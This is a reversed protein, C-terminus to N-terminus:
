GAQELHDEKSRIALGCCVGFAVGLNAVLERTAPNKKLAFYQLPNLQTVPLQLSAALTSELGLVKSGGGVLVCETVPVAQFDVEIQRFEELASKVSTTIEENIKAIVEYVEEPISQDGGSAAIKMMESNDIDISLEESINETYKSGGVPIDRTYVQIGEYMVCLHTKSAGVNLISVMGETYGFNFEHMNILSFVEIDILGVMMGLEKIVDIKQDVINKDVAILYVPVDGREDLQNRMVMSQWYLEDIDAHFNQEAEAQIQDQMDLPSAIPMIIKKILVQNGDVSIAARRGKPKIGAKSFMKKATRVVLDLDNIAGDVIAGKPIVELGVAQIKPKNGPTVELCKM